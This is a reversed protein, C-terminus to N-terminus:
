GRVKNDKSVIVNDIVAFRWYSQSIKSDKVTVVDNESFIFKSSM